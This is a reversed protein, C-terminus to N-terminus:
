ALVRRWLWIRYALCASRWCFAGNRTVFREKEATTELKPVRALFVASIFDVVTDRGRSCDAPVDHASRSLGNFLNRLEARRHRSNSLAPYRRARTAHPIPTT